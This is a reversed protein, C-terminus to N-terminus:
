FEFVFDVVSEAFDFAVEECEEASLRDPWRKDAANNMAVVNSTSVCYGSRSYENTMVNVRSSTPKNGTLRPIHPIGLWHGVEHSLNHYWTQYCTDHEGFAWFQMVHGDIEPDSDVMFPFTAFGSYNGNSFADVVYINFYKERPWNYLRRMGELQGAAAYTADNNFTVGSTPNGNPDFNALVFKIRKNVFSGRVAVFDADILPDYASKGSFFRNLMEITREVKLQTITSAGGGNEVIHVVVPIIYDTGIMLDNTNARNFTEEQFSRAFKETQLRLQDFREKELPSAQDYIRQTEIDQYCVNRSQANSLSYIFFTTFLSCILKLKM